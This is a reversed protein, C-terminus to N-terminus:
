AAVEERARFAVRLHIDIDAEDAPESENDEDKGRQSAPFRKESV